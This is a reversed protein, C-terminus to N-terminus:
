RGGYEKAPVTKLYLWLAHIEDDSLDKTFRYPMLSDVMVGAPRMGTRLLTVFKTEDYAALGTPTINAAPKWDPAGGPIPGGSLTEGHCGLCGGVRASYKGYEATPAPPMTAPHTVNADIRTADILPLKGTLYLARGVPGLRNPPIARDVPPVSRMYAILAALDDDALEKIEYSPMIWLGLGTVGVGHRIARELAVDDYRALVGGKGATLNSAMVTGIAPDDVVTGGGMDAKHCDVCKIVATAIHKGRELTAADTHVAVAHGKLDNFPKAMRSSSIAYVTGVCVALLVVLAVVAIGIRRLWLM